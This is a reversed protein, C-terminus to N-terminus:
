SAVYTTVWHKPAVLQSITVDCGVFRGLLAADGVARVRVPLPAEVVPVSKVFSRKPRFSKRYKEVRWNQVFRWGFYLMITDLYNHVM